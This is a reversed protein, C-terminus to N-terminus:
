ASWSAYRQVTEVVKEPPSPKQLVATFLSADAADQAPM